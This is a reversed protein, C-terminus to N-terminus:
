FLPSVVPVATGLGPLTQHLQKSSQALYFEFVTFMSITQNDSCKRCAQPLVGKVRFAGIVVEANLSLLNQLM